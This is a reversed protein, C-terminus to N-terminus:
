NGGPQTSRDQMKTVDQKSLRGSVRAEKAEASDEPVWRGPMNSGLQPTIYVMKKGGASTPGTQPAVQGTINLGAAVDVKVAVGGRAFKEGACDASVKKTGASVVLVYQKGKLAASDSNFQVTYQGPALKGTAFVGKSDTQGKFSTKGSNTVIVNLPPTAAYVATAGCIAIALILNRLIKNM